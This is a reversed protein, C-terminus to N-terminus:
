NKREISIFFPNIDGSANVVLVRELTFGRKKGFYVIKYGASIIIGGPNLLKVIPDRLKTFKGIYRGEYYERAKRENWPPDVIITDYKHNHEIALELYEEARICFNLRPMKPDMDVRITKDTLITEGAFLNLTKGELKDVVWAKIKTPKFTYRHCMSHLLEIETM